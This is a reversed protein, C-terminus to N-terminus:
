GLGYFFGKNGSGVDHDSNKTNNKNKEFIM